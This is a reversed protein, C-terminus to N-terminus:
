KAERTLSYSNKESNDKYVSFDMDKLKMGELRKYTSGWVIAQCYISMILPQIFHIEYIKVLMHVSLFISVAISVFIATKVTISIHKLRDQTAQHPDLKKGNIVNWYVFGSM